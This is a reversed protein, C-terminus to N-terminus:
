SIEILFLDHLQAALYLEDINYGEYEGSLLECAFICYNETVASQRNNERRSRGHSSQYSTINRKFDPLSFQELAYKQIYQRYDMEGRNVWKRPQGDKHYPSEGAYHTYAVYALERAREKSEGVELM